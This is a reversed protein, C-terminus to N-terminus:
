AVEVKIGKEEWEGILADINMINKQKLMLVRRDADAALLLKAPSEIQKGNAFWNDDDAVWFDADDFVYTAIKEGDREEIRVPSTEPDAAGINAGDEFSIERFVPATPETPDFSDPPPMMPVQDDGPADRADDAPAIQQAFNNGTIFDVANKSLNGSHIRIYPVRLEDPLDIPFEAIEQAQGSSSDEKDDSKKKKLFDPMNLPWKGNRCIQYAFALYAPIMAIIATGFALGKTGRITMRMVARWAGASLIDFRFAAHFFIALFAAYLLTWLVLIRAKKWM